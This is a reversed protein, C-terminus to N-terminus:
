RNLQRLKWSDLQGVTQRDLQGDTWSDKQGVPQRDLQRDTWSALQRDTWSELQRDTERNMYIDMWRDGCNCMKYGRTQRDIWNYKRDTEGDIQRGIYCKKQRAAWGDTQKNTQRDM